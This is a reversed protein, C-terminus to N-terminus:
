FRWEYKIKRLPDQKSTTNISPTTGTNVTPPAPNGMKRKPKETKIYISAKKM